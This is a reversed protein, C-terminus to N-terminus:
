SDPTEDALRAEGPAVQQLQEADRAGPEDAGDGTSQELQREADPQDGAPEGGGRGGDARARAGSQTLAGGGILDTQVVEPISTSIGIAM